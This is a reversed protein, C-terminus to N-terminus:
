HNQQWSSYNAEICELYRFRMQMLKTKYDKHDLLKPLESRLSAIGNTDILTIGTRKKVHQCRLELISLRGSLKTELQDENLSRESFLRETEDFLKEIDQFVADKNRSVESRKFSLNSIIQSNNWSVFATALSILFAFDNQQTILLALIFIVATPLIVSKVVLLSLYKSMIDKIMHMATSKQM